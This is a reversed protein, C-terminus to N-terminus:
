EETVVVVREGALDVQAEYRVEGTRADRLEVFVDNEAYATGRYLIVSDDSEEATVNEVRITDTEGSEDTRVTGNPTGSGIEVTGTVRETPVNRIPEVALTPADMAALHRRITANARAVERARQREADTLPGTREVSFGSEATAIEVKAARTLNDLVTVTRAGDSFTVTDNTVVFAPQSGGDAIPDDYGLATGAWGISAGLVALGVLLGVRGRLDEPM